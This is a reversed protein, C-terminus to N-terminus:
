RVPTEPASGYLTALWIQSLARVMTDVDPRPERAMAHYLYRENLWILAWGTEGPDLHGAISGALQEAEIRAAVAGALSEVIGVYAAEVQADSPAADALARLVAGHEAYVVTARELARVLDRQSTSDSGLWPEGAGVLERGIRQAIRILVENLDRFHAWFAPRKLGTRTMITAVTIERLPRERILQEAARLIEQESDQPDHKPRRQLGRTTTKTVM